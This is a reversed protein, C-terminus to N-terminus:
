RPAVVCYTRAPEPFTAGQAGGGCLSPDAVGDVVRDIKSNAAPDDCDLPSFLQAAPEVHFCEGEEVNLVFCYTRSSNFLVAYGSDERLGDPCTATPGTGQHALEYVAARKNCDTPEPSMEASAYQQDTICEGVHLGEPASPSTASSQGHGSSLAHLASLTAVGVGALGLVLLVCGSVIMAVAGGSPKPQPHYAPPPPYPYGAAAGPPQWNPMAQSARGTRTRRIGLILLLLGAAPILLSGAVIGVSGGLAAVAWLEGVMAMLTGDVPSHPIKFRRRGDPSAVAPPHM